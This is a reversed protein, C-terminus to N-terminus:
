GGDGYPRADWSFAIIAYVRLASCRGPLPSEAIAFYQVAIRRWVTGSVAGIFNPSDPVRGSWLLLGPRV